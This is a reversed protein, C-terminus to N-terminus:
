INIYATDSINRGRSLNSDIERISLWSVSSSYKVVPPPLTLPPDPFPSVSKSSRIERWGGRREIDKITDFKDRFPPSVYPHLFFRALRIEQACKRWWKELAEQKKRWATEDIWESKFRREVRKERETAPGFRCETIYKLYEFRFVQQNKTIGGRIYSSSWKEKRFFTKSILRPLPAILKWYEGKEFRNGM